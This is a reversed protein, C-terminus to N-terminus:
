RVKALAKQYWTTNAVKPSKGVTEIFKGYRKEKKAKLEAQATALQTQLKVDAKIAELGKSAAMQQAEKATTAQGVFKRGKYDPLCTIILTSTQKDGAAAKEYTIDGKALAPKEKHILQMILTNLQTVKDNASHEKSIERQKKKSIPPAKMAKKKMPPPVKSKVEQGISALYKLVAKKADIPFEKGDKTIVRVPKGGKVLKIETGKIKESTTPPQAGKMAKMAKMPMAKMGKM